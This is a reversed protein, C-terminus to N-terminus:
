FCIDLYYEMETFLELNLKFLVFYLPTFISTNSTAMIMQAQKQTDKIDVVQAGKGRYIM